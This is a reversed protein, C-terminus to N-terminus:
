IDQKDVHWRDVIVLTNTPELRNLYCRFDFEDVPLLSLDEMELEFDEFELDINEILAREMM